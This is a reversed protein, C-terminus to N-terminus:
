AFLRAVPTSFGPLIDPLTLDTDAAFLEQAMGARYVAASQTDPDLVVVATVGCALYDGAKGLVTGWPDSPSRVEAVLDPAVTSVGKPVPGRPMRGYSYYAVDPGYLKLPRARIQVLSDNTM